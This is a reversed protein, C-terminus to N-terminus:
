VIYMRKFHIAYNDCYPYIQCLFLVTKSPRVYSCTSDRAKKGTAVIGNSLGHGTLYPMGPPSLSTCVLHVSGSYPACPPCSNSM